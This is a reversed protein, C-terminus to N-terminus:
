AIINLVSRGKVKDKDLRIFNLDELLLEKLNIKINYELIHILSGLERKREYKLFLNQIWKKDSLNPPSVSIFSVIALGLLLHSPMLTSTLFIPHSSTSHIWRAWSIFPTLSNHVRHRFNPKRVVRSVPQIPSFLTAQWAIHRSTLVKKIREIKNSFLM